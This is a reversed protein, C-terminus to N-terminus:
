LFCFCPLFCTFILFVAAVLVFLVCIMVCLCSFLTILSGKVLWSFYAPLCVSQSYIATSLQLSSPLCPFVLALGQGAGSNASLASLVSWVGCDITLGVEVKTWPWGYIALGVSYRLLSVFCWPQWVQNKYPNVLTKPLFYADLSCPLIQWSDSYLSQRVLTSVLKFLSPKAWLKLSAGM